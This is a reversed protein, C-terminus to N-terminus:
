QKKESSFPRRETPLSFTDRVEISRLLKPLTQTLELLERRRQERLQVMEIRALAVELV